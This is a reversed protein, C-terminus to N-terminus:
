KTRTRRKLKTIRDVYYAKVESIFVHSDPYTQLVVYLSDKKLAELEKSFDELQRNLLNSALPMSTSLEKDSTGTLDACFKKLEDLTGSQYINVLQVTMENALDKDLSNIAFKDPHVLLMARRYLSKKEKNNQISHSLSTEKQRVPHNLPAQYNKGREKQILRKKKKASKQQRYLVSLEKAEILENAVATQIQQQFESLQIKIRRVEEKLKLLQGKLVLDEPEDRHSPLNM